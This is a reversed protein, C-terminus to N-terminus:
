YMVDAAVVVVVVVSSDEEVVVVVGGIWEEELAKQRPHRHNFRDLTLWTTLHHLDRIKCNRNV